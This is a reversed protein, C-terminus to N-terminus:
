KVGLALKLIDYAKQPTNISNQEKGTAYNLFYEMERLYWQNTNEACDIVEGNALTVTGKGFDAKVDGENTLLEITREYGRRVFDLHIEALLNKYRAIYVSIDDSNIELNSYHGSFSYSELPFGFLDVLYDWEHILDICVDGGMEKQASYIKRYDVGKRWEPLYSACIVRASYIELTPVIKKLEMF